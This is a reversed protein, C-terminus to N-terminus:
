ALFGKGTSAVRDFNERGAVKLPLDDLSKWQRHMALLDYISWGFNRLVARALARREARTAGAGLIHGANALLGRRAAPVWFVLGGIKGALWRGARYPLAAGLKLFFAALLKSFM